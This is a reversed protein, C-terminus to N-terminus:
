QKGEDQKFKTEARTTGTIVEVTLPVTVPPPAAPPKVVPKAQVKPESRAALRPLVPRPQPLGTEGTFLNSVATGPTNVTKTDLPNRLVLQIRMESSALSLTEAQEPTALLNVVPVSVPKGEADKQMNQGASLVEMNQLLTKSVTGLTNSSGPPNGAILVDVRAGPRVFGSVGGVDNVRISVARMGPPITAALGAGAGKGALRSELIPEGEYINAVVGRGVAAATSGISGKPEPGPWDVVNVDADKLLAGIEINRSAVLVQAAAPKSGSALKTVILRYLVWSAVASIVLAFALVSLLRKNM